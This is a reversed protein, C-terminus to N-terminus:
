LAAPEGGGTGGALGTVRRALLDGGAPINEPAKGPTAIVQDGAPAYRRALAEGTARHLEIKNVILAAPLENAEAIVLFRDLQRPSPEPDQAAAVVVVQDVNAAIPQGRRKGSGAAGGGLM